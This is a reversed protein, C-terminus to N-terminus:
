FARNVGEWGPNEKASRALVGPWTAAPAKEPQRLGQDAVADGLVREIDTRSFQREIEEVEADFTFAMAAPRKFDIAVALRVLRALTSIREAIGPSTHLAIAVWVEHVDEEPVDYKRLVAAAADGGEVEFRQPGDHESTTGIDHLICATFLLSLRGQEATWSSGERENIAKAYLYVRISHNLITPQLHQAAYTYAAQSVPDSPVCDPVSAGKVETSLSASTSSAPPCM